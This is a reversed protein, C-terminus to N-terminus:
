DEPINKLNKRRAPNWLGEALLSASEWRRVACIAFSLIATANARVGVITKQYDSSLVVNPTKKNAGWALIFCKGIPLVSRRTQIFVALTPYIHRRDWTDKGDKWTLEGKLQTPRKGWKRHFLLLKHNFLLCSATCSWSRGEM